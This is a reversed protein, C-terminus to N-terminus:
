SRFSRLATESEIFETSSPPIHRWDKYFDRNGMLNPVIKPLYELLDSTLDWAYRETMYFTELKWQISVPEVTLIAARFLDLQGPRDRDYTQLPHFRLFRLSPLKIAFRHLDFFDFGRTALSIKELLPLDPIPPLASDPERASFDVGNTFICLERLSSLGSLADILTFYLTDSSTYVWLSNLASLHALRQAIQNNLAGIDLARLQLRYERLFQLTGPAELIERGALRVFWLRPHTPPPATPIVSPTEDWDTRYSEHIYYNYYNIQLMELAPSEFILKRIVPQWFSLTWSNYILKLERLAPLSLRKQAMLNLLRRTIKDRHVPYLVLETVNQLLQILSELVPVWEPRKTVSHVFRRDVSIRKVRHAVFPESYFSLLAIIGKPHNHTIELISYKM